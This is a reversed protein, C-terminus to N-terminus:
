KLEGFESFSSYAGPGPNNKKLNYHKDIISNKNNGIKTM